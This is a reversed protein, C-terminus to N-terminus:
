GEGNHCFAWARWRQMYSSANWYTKVMDLKMVVNGDNNKRRINHVMEQALLFNDSTVKRPVFGSHTLSILEAM